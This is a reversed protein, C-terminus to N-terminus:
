LLTCNLDRRKSSEPEAVAVMCSYPGEFPQNAIQLGRRPVLQVLPKQSNLFQALVDPEVALKGNTLWAIFGKSSM